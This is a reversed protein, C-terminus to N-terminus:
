YLEEAWYQSPELDDDNDPRDVETAVLDLATTGVFRAFVPELGLIPAHAEETVKVPPEDENGWAVPYNGSADVAAGWREERM